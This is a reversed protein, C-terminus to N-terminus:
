KHGVQGLWVVAGYVGVEGREAYRLVPWNDHVKPMSTLETNVRELDIDKMMSGGVVIVQPDWYLMTNYLGAALYRELGTWFAKDKVERPPKGFKKEASAGGILSEISQAKGGVHDIIQYGLEYRSITADLVGDVFRAANVGTSVTYYTMVGKTTGAGLHAEGLGCLAMDNNTYVPCDFLEAIGARFRLGLWEPMNTAVVVEGDEGRLQLPCGGGVATIKHGAAVEQLTGLFRAYGGVMRDTPVAIVEGLVGDEALAIRTQTGGLDFGLVM